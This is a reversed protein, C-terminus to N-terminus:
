NSLTKLFYTNEGIKKELNIRQIIFEHSLQLNESLEYLDIQSQILPLYPIALYLSLRDAKLENYSHNILNSHDLIYHALEHFFEERELFPNSQKIYIIGNFYKNKSGIFKSNFPGRNFCLDLKDAIDEISHSYPDINYTTYIDNVINIISM